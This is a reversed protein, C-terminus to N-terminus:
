DSGTITLIAEEFINLIQRGILMIKISQIILSNSAFFGPNNSGAFTKSFFRHTIMSNAIYKDPCLFATCVTPTDLIQLSGVLPLADVLEGWM